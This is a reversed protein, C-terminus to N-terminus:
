EKENQNLQFNKYKFITSKSVGFYKQAKLTSNEKCFQSIALKINDTIAYRKKGTDNLNHKNCHYHITTRSCKLLNEIQRYTKGQKRLELIPIKLNRYGSM